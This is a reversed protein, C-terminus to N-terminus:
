FDGETVTFQMERFDAAGEKGAERVEARLLYNAPEKPVWTRQSDGWISGDAETIWEFDAEAIKKYGFRVESKGYLSQNFADLDVSTGLPAYKEPSADFSLLVADAVTITQALVAQAEVANSEARRVEVKFTYHGPAAFVYHFDNETCWDGDGDEDEEDDPHRVPQDNVFYRFKYFGPDAAIPEYMDVEMSYDYGTLVHDDNEIISPHFEEIIVAETKLSKEKAQSVIRPDAGRVQVEFSHVGATEITYDRDKQKSWEDNGVKLVKGNISWRYETANRAEADLKLEDGIVFPTVKGESNINGGNALDGVFNVVVPSNKAVVEKTTIESGGPGTFASTDEQNQGRMLAFAIGVGVILIAILWPWSRNM